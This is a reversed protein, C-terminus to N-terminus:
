QWFYYSVLKVYDDIFDLNRLKAPQVFIMRLGSTAWHGSIAWHGSTARPVLM